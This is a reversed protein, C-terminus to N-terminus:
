IDLICFAAYSQIQPRLGTRPSNPTVPWRFHLLICFQVGARPSLGVLWKFPSSRPICYLLCNLLALEKSSCACLCSYAAHKKAFYQEKCSMLLFAICTRELFMNRNKAFLM